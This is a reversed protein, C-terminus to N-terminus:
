CAITQAARGTSRPLLSIQGTIGSLPFMTSLNLGVESSALLAM